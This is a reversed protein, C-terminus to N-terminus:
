QCRFRFVSAKLDEIIEEVESRLQMLRRSQEGWTKASGHANMLDRANQIAVHIKRVRKLFENRQEQRAIHRARQSTGWDILLKLLGGIIVVLALQLALEGSKKYFEIQPNQDSAASYLYLYKALVICAVALLATLSLFLVTGTIPPKYAMSDELRLDGKAFHVVRSPRYM